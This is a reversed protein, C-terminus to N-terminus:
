KGVGAMQNSWQWLLPISTLKSSQFKYKLAKSPHICKVSIPIQTDSTM